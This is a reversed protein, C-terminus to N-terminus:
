VGREADEHADEGGAEADPEAPEESAEPVPVDRTRRNIYPMTLALAALYLPWGMSIKAVALWGTADNRRLTEQVVVRVVSVLGWGITAEIMARRVKPHDHWEKPKDLILRMIVGVLPKRILASFLFAFAYVGNIIIGPLFFNKAKGSRRAFLVAIGVGVAGSFAHRLTERQVLRVLIVLVEAVVAAWIGTTLDGIGNGIVFAIPPVAQDVWDRPGGFMEKPDMSARRAAIAEELATDADPAALIKDFRSM